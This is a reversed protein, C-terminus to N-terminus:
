PYRLPTDLERTLDNAWWILLLLRSGHTLGGIALALQHSPVM